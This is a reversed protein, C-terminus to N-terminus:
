LAPIAGGRRGAERSYEKKKREKKRRKGFKGLARENPDSFKYNYM